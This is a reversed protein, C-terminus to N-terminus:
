FMKLVKEKNSRVKLYKEHDRAEIRNGFEKTYILNFPAYPSTSKERRNNHRQLRKAINSTM